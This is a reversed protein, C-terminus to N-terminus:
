FRKISFNERKLNAQRNNSRYQKVGLYVVHNNEPFFTGRKISQIAEKFLEDELIIQAKAGKAVEQNLKIESM